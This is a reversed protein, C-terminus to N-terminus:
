RGRWVPARHEAFARPGEASDESELRRQELPYRGSMAQELPMGLGQLACQKTAQVALPACALIAQVWRETVADLDALPAVENVLGYQRAHAATIQHGTLMMGMATKLPLQRPLRHVGGATAILGRRPEPLAFAAHEAAVIIDCALALEFGGGLAMGNVRAIVPKAFGHRDTLRRVKSWREALAQREDDPMLSSAAVEKLDRGASFAKDGFGTLVVVRIADDEEIRDLAQSLALHAHSDMANMAQPRNITLTAVHGDIEFLIPSM